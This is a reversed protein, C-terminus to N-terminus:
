ECVTDASLFSQQQILWQGWGPAAHDVAMIAKHLSRKDTRNEKSIAQVCM